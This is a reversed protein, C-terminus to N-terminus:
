ACFFHQRETMCYIILLFTSCRVASRSVLTVEIQSSAEVFSSKIRKYIRLRVGLKPVLEKLCDPGANSALLAELSEGDMENDISFHSFGVCRLNGSPKGKFSQVVDHPFDQKEMWELLEEESTTALAM